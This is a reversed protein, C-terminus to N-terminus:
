RGGWGCDLANVALMEAEQETRDRLDVCVGLICMKVQGLGGLGVSM